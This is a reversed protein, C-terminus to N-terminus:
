FNDPRELMQTLDRIMTNHELPFMKEVQAWTFPKPVEELHRAVGFVRLRYILFEYLYMREPTTYHFAISYNSCCGPGTEIETATMLRLWDPITINVDYMYKAVDLPFLKTKIDNTLAYRADILHVGVNQLCIGMYFDEIGNKKAEPCIKSSEYAQRRFRRLAERSLIYSAGGSMYSVNYRNMKYGFYIPMNPDYAALMYRLNEMIVYTDDDAKIFWDYQGGYTEYVHRFGERTKNWLNDYADAEPEIVRVVGLSENHESSVFVLKTCRQGWTARVHQAYREIYDPCTLVMCLIRLQRQLGLALNPRQQNLKLTVATAPLTSSPWCPPNHVDYVCLLLVFSCVFGAIFGCLLHLQGQLLRSSTAPVSGM